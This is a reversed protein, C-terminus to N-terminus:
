SRFSVENWPIVIGSQQLRIGSSDFIFEPGGRGLSVFIKIIAAGFLITGAWGMGRDMVDEGRFAMWLSALILAIGGFLILSTKLPDRVFEIRDM